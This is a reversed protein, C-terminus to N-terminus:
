PKRYGKKVKKAFCADYHSVTALYFITAFKKTM